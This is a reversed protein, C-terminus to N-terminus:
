KRGAKAGALEACFQAMEDKMEKASIYEDAVDAKLPAELVAKAAKQVTLDAQLRDSACWISEAEVQIAALVVEKDDQLRASAFGLANGDKHGDTPASGKSVARLVVDRDDCLEENAFNLGTYFIPSFHDTICNILEPDGGLDPYSKFVQACRCVRACGNAHAAGTWRM